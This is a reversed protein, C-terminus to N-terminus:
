TANCEFSLPEVHTSKSTSQREELQGASINKAPRSVFLLILLATKRTGPSLENSLSRMLKELFILQGSHVIDKSLLNMYPDLIIEQNNEFCIRIHSIQALTAPIELGIKLTENEGWRTEQIKKLIESLFDMPEEVM